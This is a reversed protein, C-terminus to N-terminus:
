FHTSVFIHLPPYKRKKFLIAPATLQFEGLEFNNVLVDDQTVEETDSEISLRSTESRATDENEAPVTFDKFIFFFKYKIQM